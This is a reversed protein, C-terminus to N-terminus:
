KDKGEVTDKDNKEGKNPGGDKTSILGKLSEVVPRIADMTNKLSNMHETLSIASRKSGKQRRYRIRFASKKFDLYGTALDRLLEEKQKLEPAINLLTQAVGLAAMRDRYIIAQESHARYLDAVYKISWGCFLLLAFRGVGVLIMRELIALWEKQGNVSPGPASPIPQLSAKIFFFYLAFMTCVVLIFIIISLNVAQKNHFKCADNFIDKKTEFDLQSAQRIKENARAETELAQALQMINKAEVIGNKIKQLYNTNSDLRNLSDQAEKQHATLLAVAKPDSLTGLKKENEKVKLRIEKISAIGDSVWNSVDEKLIFINREAKVFQLAQEPTINFELGTKISNLFANVQDCLHIFYGYADEIETSKEKSNQSM